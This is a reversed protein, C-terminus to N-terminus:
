GQTAQAVGTFYLYENRGIPENYFSLSLLSCSLAPVEGCRGLSLPSLEDSVLSAILTSDTIERSDNISYHLAIRDDFINIALVAPTEKIKASSVTLTLVDTDNMALIFRTQLQSHIVDVYMHNFTILRRRMDSDQPTDRFDAVLVYAVNKQLFIDEESRLVDTDRFYVCRGMEKSFSFIPRQLPSPALLRSGEFDPLWEMDAMNYTDSRYFQIPENYHYYERYEPVYPTMYSGKDVDLYPSIMTQGSLTVIQGEQPVGDTFRISSYGVSTKLEEYDEGRYQRVGDVCVKTTEPIYFTNFSFEDRTGDGLEKAPENFFPRDNVQYRIPIIKTNQKSIVTTHASITMYALPIYCDPLVPINTGSFNVGKIIRLEPPLINGDKDYLNEDYHVCIIDTRPSENTPDVYFPAKIQTDLVIKTGRDSYLVGAGVNISNTEQGFYINLGNKVGSPVIDKIYDRIEDDTINKRNVFSVRFNSGLDVLEIPAYLLDVQTYPMQLTLLLRYDGVNLNNGERNIYVTGVILTDDSVQRIEKIDVMADVEVISHTSHNFLNVSIVPNEGLDSIFGYYYTTFHYVIPLAKDFRM